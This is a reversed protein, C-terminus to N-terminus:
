KLFRDQLRRIVVDSIKDQVILKLLDNGKHFAILEEKAEGLIEYVLEQDQLFGRGIINICCVADKSQSEANFKTKMLSLFETARRLDFAVQIAMHDKESIYNHINPVTGHDWFFANVCQYLEAISSDKPVSLTALSLGRQNTIAIVEAREMKKEKELNPEILTGNHTLNFSSRIRLKIKYKSALQAARTHIVGAGSWALNCLEPYNLRPILNAKTYYRPDSNYIGDVDTYIECLDAKLRYALAVATLDSGGSGLTTIDKTPIAMGQFGAVIAVKNEDLATQIRDGLINQIRANGHHTDTLIGSQSGTFSACPVGLSGLALGMLSMSVREGATLLVDMERPLPSESIEYAFAKLRDTEDGMASVVIVMKEGREIYSRIHNAIIKIREVTALSTGGYKQVLLSM